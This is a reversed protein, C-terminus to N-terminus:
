IGINLVHYNSFFFVGQFVSYCEPLSMCIIHFLFLPQPLLNLNLYMFLLSLLFLVIESSSVRTFMIQSCFCFFHLDHLLYIQCLSLFIFVFTYHWLTLSLNKLFIPHNIINTDLDWLELSFSVDKELANLFTSSSILLSNYM